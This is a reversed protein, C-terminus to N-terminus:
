WSSTDEEVWTRAIQERIFRAAGDTDDIWGVRPSVGYDGFKMVLIMWLMQAMNDSDYGIEFLRDHDFTLRNTAELMEVLKEAYDYFGNYWLAWFFDDEFTEHMAM